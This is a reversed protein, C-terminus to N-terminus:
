KSRTKSEYNEVDLPDILQHGYELKKKKKKKINIIDGVTFNNILKFLM